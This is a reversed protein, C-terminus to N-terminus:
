NVNKKLELKFKNVVDTSVRLLEINSLENLLDAFAAETITESLVGSKGGQQFLKTGKAHISAAIAYALDRKTKGPPPSIAVYQLWEEIAERLTPKSPTSVKTPGRGDELAEIYDPGYLTGGTNDVTYFIRRATKGSAQNIRAIIAEKRKEFFAAIIERNTAM